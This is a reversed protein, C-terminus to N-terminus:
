PLGSQVRGDKGLSKDHYTPHELRKSLGNRVRTGARVVGLRRICRRAPGHLAVIFISGREM